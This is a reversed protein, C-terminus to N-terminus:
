ITISISIFITIFHLICWTWAHLRQLHFPLYCVEAQPAKDGVKM